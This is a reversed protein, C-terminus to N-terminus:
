VNKDQLLPKVGETEPFGWKDKEYKRYTHQGKRSANQKKNGTDQAKLKSALSIQFIRNSMSHFFSLPPQHHYTLSLSLPPPPSLSLSLSLSLVVSLCLCLCLCVSLCVSVFLCAPLCAPLCAHICAHMCAPLCVSRSRSACLYHSVLFLIVKSNMDLDFTM